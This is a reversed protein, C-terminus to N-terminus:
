ITTLQALQENTLGSTFLVVSNFSVIEQYAFYTVADNLFLESKTGNTTYTDSSTDELIGNIYMAMDGSKYRVAIKVRQGLAYNNTSSLGINDFGGNGKFIYFEYKNGAYARQLTFTSISPATKNTNIINTTPNIANNVTGDFFVTGETQGILSSIGTKSIVDANRTVSSAVTPIYSTPYSGVEATAGYALVGKVGDPTWNFLPNGTTYSDPLVVISTQSLLGITTDILTIRYWGNGYNVISGTQNTSLLTGNSLDFAAYNGVLESERVAVKSYGNAKVFWSHSTTASQNFINSRLAHIGNNTNPIVADANTNGDPSVATNATISVNLKIWSINDFQESYTVLNTRQPEVLISPCSSNTYDLRPVNLRDTTPFYEKASTGTVLQAGWAYISGTTTIALEAYYNGAIFNASLSCRYWGNGVNEISAVVSTTSGYVTPTGATGNSLDFTCTTGQSFGSSGLDLRFSSTTNAKAYVSISYSGTILSFANTAYLFATNATRTFTDATLTGNPATTTNATITADQTSWYANDFQESYQLLNYPVLEILGASNVRTATTARTVVLDGSGDTPKISYLKDEKYGNPTVVLSASDFLSM